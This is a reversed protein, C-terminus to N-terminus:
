LIKLNFTNLLVNQKFPIHNVTSINAFSATNMSRVVINVYQAQFLMKYRWIKISTSYNPNFAAFLYPPTDKFLGCCSHFLRVLDFQNPTHFRNAAHSDAANEFM